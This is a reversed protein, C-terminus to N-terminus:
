LKVGKIDTLKIFGTYRSDLSNNRNDGMIFCYGSPVVLPGFNDASWRQSNNDMWKFIGFESTDSYNDIFPTFFTKLPHKKLDSEAINFLLSDSEDLVPMMMFGNKNEEPMENAKEKPFKYLHCLDIGADFNKGNVYFVGNKMEIRDNEMACLRHIYISHVVGTTLGTNANVTDNVYNKYVVIDGREPKRLNTTFINQGVHMNPESSPTSIRYFQLMGTLRAIVWLVFLIGPPILLIKLWKKM